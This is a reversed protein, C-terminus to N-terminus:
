QLDIEIRTVSYAPLDLGLTAGNREVKLPKEEFVSDPDELDVASLLRAEAAGVTAGTLELQAPRAQTINRNLLTVVLRNRKRDLSACIDLDEDKEPKPTEILLNGHHAQFLRHVQGAATLYVANPRVEICGENVPQFFMASHLGLPGSERCFMNLASAVYMGDAPGSHWEHETPRVFWWHWLNWEDVTLLLKPAGPATGKDIEARADAIKQRLALTAKRGRELSVSGVLAVTDPPGYYPHASVMDLDRGAEVVMKESYGGLSGSGILQISPDIKRLPASFRAAQKGYEAPPFYSPGMWPGFNENGISWFKVAYPEPHGREARLKGWGSDAPGNCYELLDCGNQLDDTINLVVSAQAGLNECLAMFDDIGIEHFDYNDTFPLSEHHKSMIPPRADVPLLGEKWKWNRTFNGGWRLVPVSMERLAEIVDKRLGRFNDAPLLSAAGLWATGLGEFTIEIRASPDSEPVTVSTTWTHWENGSWNSAEQFYTKRGTSDCLRLSAKMGFHTRLVLRIEYRTGALLNIGEQGVGGWRGEKIVDLRQATRGNYTIEDDVLFNTWTNGIGYWHAAVGDPGPAGQTRMRGVFGQPNEVNRYFDTTSAGAFKRNALMQASLGQWVARRTPEVNHGFLLPSIEGAKKSADIRFVQLAIAPAQEARVSLTMCQLSVAFCVLLSTLSNRVSWNTRRMATERVLRALSTPASKGFNPRLSEFISAAYKKM